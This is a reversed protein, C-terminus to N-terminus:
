PVSVMRTMTVDVAVASVAHFRVTISESRMSPWEPILAYQGYLLNQELIEGKETTTAQIVQGIEILTGTKNYRRFDTLEPGRGSVRGDYPVIEFNMGAVPGRTESDYVCAHLMGRHTVEDGRDGGVPFALVHGRKLVITAVTDQQEAPPCDAFAGASFALAAMGFLALKKITWM